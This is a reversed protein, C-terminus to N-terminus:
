YIVRSPNLLPVCRILSWSLFCPSLSVAVKANIEKSEKKTKTENTKLSSLGNFDYRTAVFNNIGAM